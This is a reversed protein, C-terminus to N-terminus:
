IGYVAFPLDFSFAKPTNSLYKDANRSQLEALRMCTRISRPIIVIIGGTPDPDAGAVSGTSM